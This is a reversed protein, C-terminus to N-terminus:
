IGGKGDTIEEVEVHGNVDLGGVMGGFMATALELPMESDIRIRIEIRRKQLVPAAPAVLVEALRTRRCAM